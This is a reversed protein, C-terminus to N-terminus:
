GNIKAEKKKALRIQESPSALVVADRTVEAVTYQTGPVPDGQRLIYTRAHYRILVLQQPGFGGVIGKWAFHDTEPTGAPTVKSEIAVPVPVASKIEPAAVAVTPTLLAAPIFPDRESLLDAPLTQVPPATTVNAVATEGSQAAEPHTSVPPAPDPRNPAAAVPAPNGSSAPLKEKASFLPQLLMYLIVVGGIALVVITPLSLAPKGSTKEVKDKM